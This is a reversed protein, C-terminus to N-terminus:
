SGRSYSSSSPNSYIRLLIRLRLRQYKRCSHHLRMVNLM